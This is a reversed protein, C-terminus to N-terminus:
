QFYRSDLLALWYFARIQREVNLSM